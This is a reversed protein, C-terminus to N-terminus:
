RNYLPFNVSSLLIDAGLSNALDTVTHPPEVLFWVTSISKDISFYNSPIRLDLFDIFNDFNVDSWFKMRSHYNSRAM